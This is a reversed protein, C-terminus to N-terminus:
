KNYSHYAVKTDYFINNLIYLHYCDETKTSVSIKYGGRTGYM